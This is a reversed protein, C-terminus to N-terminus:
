AILKSLSAKNVDFQENSDVTTATTAIGNQITINCIILFM